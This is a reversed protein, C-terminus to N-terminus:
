TKSEGEYKYNFRELSILCIVIINYKICKGCKLQVFKLIYESIFNDEVNLNTSSKQITPFEMSKKKKWMENIRGRYSIAFKKEM